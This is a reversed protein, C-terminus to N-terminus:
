YTIRNFVKMKGARARALNEIRIKEARKAVHGELIIANEETIIKVNHASNSLQKDSLIAERLKRTVEMRKDDSYQPTASFAAFSSLILTFMLIIQKFKTM